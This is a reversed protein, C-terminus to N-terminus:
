DVVNDTRINHEDQLIINKVKCIRWSNIGQNLSVEYILLCIWFASMTFHALLCAPSLLCITKAWVVSDVLMIMQATCACRHRHQLRQDYETGVSHWFDPLPLCLSIGLDFQMSGLFAHAHHTLSRLTVWSEDCVKACRVPDEKPSFALSSGLLFTKPRLYLQTFETM